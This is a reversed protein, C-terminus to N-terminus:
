GVDVFVDRVYPPTRGTIGLQEHMASIASRWEHSSAPGQMDADGVFYVFVLETPVANLENLLYAHALRNAYQYFGVCWDPAGQVGLGMQTQECAARIATISAPSTAACSSTLEHVHAKAEVLVSAGGATRALGDWVPGGHPWFSALSCRKLDVGLRDIFAQDRYESFADDALPALWELPGLGIADDLVSSRQEVLEQLWRQSGRSARKQVIRGL